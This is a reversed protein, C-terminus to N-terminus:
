LMNSLQNSLKSKACRSSGGCINQRSKQLKMLIKLKYITGMSLCSGNFVVAASLIDFFALVFEKSVSELDLEMLEFCPFSAATRHILFFFISFFNM